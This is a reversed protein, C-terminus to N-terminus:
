GLREVTVRVHLCGPLDTVPRAPDIERLIDEFSWQSGAEDVIRICECDSEDPKTTGELVFRLGAFM